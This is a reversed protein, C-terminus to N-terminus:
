LRCPFVKSERGFPVFPSLRSSVCHGRRVLYADVTSRTSSLRMLMLNSRLLPGFTEVNHCGLSYRDARGRDLSLDGALIKAIRIRNVKDVPMKPLFYARLRERAGTGKEHQPGSKPLLADEKSNRSAQARGSALFELGGFAPPARSNLVVFKATAFTTTRSRGDFGHTSARGNRFRRATPWTRGKGSGHDRESVLCSSRVSSTTRDGRGNLPM